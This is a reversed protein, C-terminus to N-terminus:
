SYFDVQHQDTPLMYETPSLRKSIKLLAKYNCRVQLCPFLNLIIEKSLELTKINQRWGLCLHNHLKSAYVLALINLTLFEM